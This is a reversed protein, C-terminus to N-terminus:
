SALLLDVGVTLFGGVEDTLFSLALPFVLKPDLYIVASAKAMKPVAQLAGVVVPPATTTLTQKFRWGAKFTATGDTVSGGDVASAYGAPESAASTGSTTCIFVRGPNSAVKIVDGSASSYATSNARATAASDWAETSATLATGAAVIDTTGSKTVGLASGSTGQYSLDIWFEKNTPLATFARPDAVGEITVEINSDVTDNFKWIPLAQLPILWEANATTELKWSIPTTGDSAGGTRAVITSTNLDGSYDGAIAARHGTEASDTRFLILNGVPATARTVLTVAADIKCNELTVIARAAAPGILTKGSSLASFDFNKFIKTGTVVGSTGFFTTPFVSGTLSGGDWIFQVSPLVNHNTAGFQMTCNKFYQMASTGAGITFSSASTGLMRFACQEFFMTSSAGSCTSIGAAVAGSGANFTIGYIYAMRTTTNALVIPSAGTTSVAATTRLDASVPPVTGAKNVCIIKVPDAFTGKVDTWTLAGATSENHTHAVWIFDGAVAGAFADGIKLWANAWNAGSPTGGATSDVYIHAM